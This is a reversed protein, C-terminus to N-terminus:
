VLQGRTLWCDRTRGAEDENWCSINARLERDGVQWAYFQSRKPNRHYLSTPHQPHSPLHQLQLSYHGSTISSNSPPLTDLTSPHTLHCLTPHASFTKSRIPTTPVANAISFDKERNIWLVIDYTLYNPDGWHTLHLIGHVSSTYM